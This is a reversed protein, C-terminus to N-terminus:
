KDLSQSERAQMAQHGPAILRRAAPAPINISRLQPAACILTASCRDWGGRRRGWDGGASAGSPCLLRAMGRARIVIKKVRSTRRTRPFCQGPPTWCRLGPGALPNLQRRWRFASLLHYPCSLSFRLRQSINLCSIFPIEEGAGGM